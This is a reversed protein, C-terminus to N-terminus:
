EGYVQNFVVKISNKGDDDYARSYTEATYIGSVGELDVWTFSSVGNAADLFDMIAKAEDDELSDISVAWSKPNSNIGVPSRQVYGDGYSVKRIKPAKNLITGFTVMWTFTSM